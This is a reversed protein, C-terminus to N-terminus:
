VMIPTETFLCFIDNEECVKWFNFFLWVQNTNINSIPTTFPTPIYVKETVQEIIVLTEVLGDEDPREIINESLEEKNPISIEFSAWDMNIAEQFYKNGYDRSLFYRLEMEKWFPTEEKFELMFDSKTLGGDGYIQDLGANLEYERTGYAYIIEDRIRAPGLNLSYLDAINGISDSDMINNHKLINVWMRIYKYFYNAQVHCKAYYMRESSTGLMNCTRPTAQFLGVTRTHPNIAKTDFASERNFIALVDLTSVLSFEEKIKLMEFFLQTVDAPDDNPFSQMTIMYEEYLLHNDYFIPHVAECKGFNDAYINCIFLLSTIIIIFKKM